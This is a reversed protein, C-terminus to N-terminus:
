GFAPAALSELDPLLIDLHEDRALDHYHPHLPFCALVHSPSMERVVIPCDSWKKYPDSFEGLGQGAGQADVYSGDPARCAVHMPHREEWPDFVGVIPWRTREHIALALVSCWGRLYYTEMESRNAFSYVHIQNGPFCRKLHEIDQFGCETLREPTPEPVITNVWTGRNIEGSLQGTYRWADDIIEMAEHRGDGGPCGRSFWDEILIHRVYIQQLQTCWFAVPDDKRSLADRLAVVLAHIPRKSREGFVETASKDAIVTRLVDQAMTLSMTVPRYGRLIMEQKM